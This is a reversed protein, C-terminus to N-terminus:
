FSEAVQGLIESARTYMILHGEGAYSTFAVSPIADRYYEGMQLPVNGDEAGYFLSVPTEIRACDFGWDGLFVRGDWYPGRSGRSCMEKTNDLFGDFRETDLLAAEAEPLLRAM